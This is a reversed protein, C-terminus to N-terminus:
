ATDSSERLEARKRRLAAGGVGTLGTGLLLLTVPEPTVQATCEGINCGVLFNIKSQDTFEWLGGIRFNLRLAGNCTQWGGNQYLYSSEAYADATLECGYISSGWHNQNDNFFMISTPDVFAHGYEPGYGPGGSIARGANGEPTVQAFGNNLLSPGNPTMVGTSQLGSWLGHPRFKTPGTDPLWNNAGQLNVVRIQVDTYTGPGSMTTGSGHVFWVQVSFCTKMAGLTCHNIWERYTDAVAVTPRAIGGLFLALALKPGSAFSM